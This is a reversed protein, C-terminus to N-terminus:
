PAENHVSCSGLSEALDSTSNRRCAQTWRQIDDLRYRVCAGLKLFPPGSGEVRWRALTQPKMNLYDALQKESLLVDPRRATTM